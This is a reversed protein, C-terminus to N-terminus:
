YKITGRATFTYVAATVTPAKSTVTVNGTAGRYIGTGRTIKNKIVITLSGDPNLTAKATFPGGWSGLPLFVTTTGHSAGNADFTIHTIIAGSGGPKGAIRGASTQTSGAVGPIGKGAIAASAGHGSVAYSKRISSTKGVALTAVLTSTTAVVAVLVVARKVLM